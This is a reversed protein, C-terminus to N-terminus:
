RGMFRQVNVLSDLVEYNGGSEWEEKFWERVPKRMSFSTWGM